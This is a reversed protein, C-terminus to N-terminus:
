IDSIVCYQVLFILWSLPHGGIALIINKGKFFNLCFFRILMFICFCISCCNVELVIKIVVENVNMKESLWFIAKRIRIWYIAGSVFSSIKLLLFFSKRYEREFLGLKSRRIESVKISLKEFIFDIKHPPLMLKVIFTSEWWSNTFPKRSILKNKVPDITKENSAFIWNIWGM